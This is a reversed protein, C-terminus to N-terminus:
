GAHRRRSKRELAAVAREVLQQQAAELGVFRGGLRTLGHFRDHSLFRVEIQSSLQNSPSLQLLCNSLVQGQQVRPPAHQVFQAGVGGVSLDYLVGRYLGEGPEGISVPVVHGHDLTVRHARRRQTYRVSGPLAIKYFAIAAHRATDLLDASFEILAGNLRGQIVARASHLFLQHGPAPYLEDLLLCAQEPMVKLVASSYSDAHGPIKVSLLARARQLRMLLEVIRGPQIIREIQEQYAFHAPQAAYAHKM